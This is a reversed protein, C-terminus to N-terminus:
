SKGKKTSINLFWIFPIALLRPIFRKFKSTNAELEKYYGNITGNRFQLIDDIKSGDEYYGGYFNKDVLLLTVLYRVSLGHIKLIKILYDKFLTRCTSGGSINYVQQNLEKKYNVARALAYAADTSTILEVRTNPPTNYMPADTKVNCLLAPLRFITYHKLEKQILLEVDRKVSSYHDDSDIVLDDGVSRRLGVEGYVTTSSSYIMFCRPNHENIANIITKTGDYDVARTLDGKLDALPPIVGALHIVMDHNRILANMLVPDNIDGYILNIRKRYKKLRKNSRYNKLDLATIEYADEEALLYKVVLFGITGSAGTVLIRKM